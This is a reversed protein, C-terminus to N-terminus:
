ITDTPENIIAQIRRLQDATLDYCIHNEFSFKYCLMNYVLQDNAEGDTRWLIACSSFISNLGTKHIPRDNFAKHGSVEIYKTGVKSVTVTVLKDSFIGYLTDGKKISKQKM